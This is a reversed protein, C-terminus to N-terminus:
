KHEHGEEHDHDEHAHDHDDHHAVSGSHSQGAVTLDLSGHLDDETKVSEPLKDGSLSFRSTQGALEGEVPTAEFAIPEAGELKLTLTADAVPTAKAMDHDLLNVTLNRSTEDFVLEAHYAHDGLIAVHGGNPGHAPHHHEEVPTTNEVNDDKSFQRYEEKGGCGWVGLAFVALLSWVRMSM